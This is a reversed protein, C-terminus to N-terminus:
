AGGLKVTRKDGGSTEEGAKIINLTGARFKQVKIQGSEISGQCVYFGTRPSSPMIM